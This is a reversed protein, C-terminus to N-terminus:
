PIVGLERLGRTLSRSGAILRDRSAEAAESRNRWSEAAASMDRVIEALGSVAAKDDEILVPVLHALEFPPAMVDQHDTVKRVPVRRFGTGLDGQYPDATVELRRTMMYILDGAKLESVPRLEYREPM